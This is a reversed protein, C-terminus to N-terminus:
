NIDIDFCWRKPLDHLRRDHCDNCLEDNPRDPLMLRRLHLYFGVYRHIRRLEDQDPLVDHGSGDISTDAHYGPDHRIDRLGHKPGRYSSLDSFSMLLRDPLASGSEYSQSLSSSNPRKEFSQISIASVSFSKGPDSRDDRIFHFLYRNYHGGGVHGHICATGIHEYNHDGPGFNYANCM